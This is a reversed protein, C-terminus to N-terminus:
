SVVQSGKKKKKKQKEIGGEFLCAFLCFCIFLDQSRARKVEFNIMWPFILMLFGNILM